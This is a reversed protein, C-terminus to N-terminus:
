ELAHLRSRHSHVRGSYTDSQIDDVVDDHISHRGNRESSEQLDACDCIGGPRVGWSGELIDGEFM